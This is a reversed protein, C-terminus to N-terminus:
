FKHKVDISLFLNSARSETVSRASKAFHLERLIADFLWLNQRPQGLDDYVEIYWGRPGDVGYFNSRAYPLRPPPSVGNRQALRRRSRRRRRWRKKRDFGSYDFAKPV